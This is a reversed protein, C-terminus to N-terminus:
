VNAYKEKIRIDFVRQLGSPLLRFAEKAGRQPRGTRAEENEEPPRFLEKSLPNHLQLHTLRL